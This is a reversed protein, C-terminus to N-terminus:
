RRDVPVFMGPTNDLHFRGELVPALYEDYHGIAVAPDTKMGFPITVTGGPPVAEPLAIRNKSVWGNGLDAFGSLRDIPRDTSLRFPAEGTPFWPCLEGTNRITVSFMGPQDNTVVLHGNQWPTASESVFAWSCDSASLAPLHAADAIVTPIYLGIQQGFRGGEAGDKVLTFRQRYAQGVNEPGRIEYTFTATEGPSVTGNHDQDSSWPVRNGNLVGGSANRIASDDPTGLTVDPGWFRSGTNRLTISATGEQGPALVPAYSEGVFMADYGITLTPPLGYPPNGVTVWTSPMVGAVQGTDKRVVNWRLFYHGQTTDASAQVGARYYGVHDDNPAVAGPWDGSGSLGGPIRLFHNIDAVTAPDPRLVFNNVDFPQNFRVNYGVAQGSGGAVIPPPLIQADLSSSFPPPAPPAPGNGAPGGYIYGIIGQISQARNTSVTLPAIWNSDSVTIRNNGPATSEVYAVHGASGAGGMNAGWVAIAGPIPANGTPFGARRASDLWQAANGWNNGVDPRRQKAYWTCQGQPYANGGGLGTVPESPVQQGPSATADTPGSTPIGSNPPAQGQAKPASTCHRRNSKKCKAKAPHAIAGAAATTPVLGAVLVAFVVLLAVPVHRSWNRRIDLARRTRQENQMNTSIDTM